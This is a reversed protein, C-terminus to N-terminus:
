GHTMDRYVPILKSGQGTNGNWHWGLGGTQVPNAAGAVGSRFAHVGIYDDDTILANTGTRSVAYMAANAGAASQINRTAMAAWGGTAIVIGADESPRSVAVTTAHLRAAAALREADFSDRQLNRSSMDSMLDFWEEWDPMDIYLPLKFAAAVEFLTRLTLKGYDPDELRSVVSQTTGMAHALDTQSWGRQERLSRILLALRTRVHDAVFGDRLEDDELEALFSRSRIPSFGANM